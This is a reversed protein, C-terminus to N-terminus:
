HRPRDHWTLGIVVIALPAIIAWARVDRIHPVLDGHYRSLTLLASVAVVQVAVLAGLGTVFARWTLVTMTAISLAIYFGAQFSPLSAMAGQADNFPIDIAFVALAAAYVPGLVYASLGGVTCAIATVRWAAAGRRWAALVFVVVAALLLQYFAHILFLPSGILAAPLAVVLLRTIGLAIFLPVAAAMGLLRWRWQTCYTMLVAFYLPILPTSICEPTVEFGGKSTWLTNASTIAGIGIMGLADAARRAIFSAVAVATASQLYLTSTAVFLLVFLVTWTVLAFTLSTSAGDAAGDSFAVRSRANVVQMWAFVYGAILLVLVAPWVYVHLTEFLLPSAVARGLTGIRISNLVLILAFGIATGSLRSKWTAPYALIAGACLAFADAGSCALTVDIPLAPAGLTAAAVSGQWQTFPLLVHGEVWNLRLLAFV